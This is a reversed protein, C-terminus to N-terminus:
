SFYKKKVAELSTFYSDLLTLCIINNIFFKDRNDRFQWSRFKFDYLIVDDMRSMWQFNKKCYIKDPFTKWKIKFSDFPNSFSISFFSSFSLFFFLSIVLSLSPFPSLTLSLFEVWELSCQQSSKYSHYLIQTLTVHSSHRKILIPRSRFAFWINRWVVNRLLLMATYSTTQKMALLSVDRNTDAVKTKLLIQALGLSIEIKFTTWM